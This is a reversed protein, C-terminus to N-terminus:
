SSKMHGFSRQKMNSLFPRLKMDSKRRQRSLRRFSESQIKLLNFGRLWPPGHVAVNTASFTSGSSSNTWAASWGHSKPCCWISQKDMMEGDNNWWTEMMKGDNKWGNTWWKGMMGDFSLTFSTQRRILQSPRLLMWTSRTQSGHDTQKGPLRHAGLGELYSYFPSIGM